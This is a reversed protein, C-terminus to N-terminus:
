PFRRHSPHPHPSGRTEPSRRAGKHHDPGLGGGGGGPDPRGLRHPVAGPPTRQLRGFTMGGLLRREYWEGLRGAIVTLSPDRAKALAKQPTCPIPRLANLVPACPPPCCRAVWLGAIRQPTPSRQRSGSGSPSLPAPWHAGLDPTAESRSTGSETSDSCGGCWEPLAFLGSRPPGSHSPPSWRPRHM